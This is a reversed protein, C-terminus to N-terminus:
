RGERFIFMVEFKEGGEEILTGSREHVLPLNPYPSM